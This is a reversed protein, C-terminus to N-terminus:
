THDDLEELTEPSVDFLDITDNIFATIEDEIVKQAQRGRRPSIKSLRVSLMESRQNLIGEAWNIGSDQWNVFDNYSCLAFHQKNQKNLYYSM